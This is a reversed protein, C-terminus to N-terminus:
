EIVCVEKETLLRQLECLMVANKRELERNHANIKSNAATLKSVQEGHSQLENARQREM